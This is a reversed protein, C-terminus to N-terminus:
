ELDSAPSRETGASETIEESVAHININMQFLRKSNGTKINGQEMFQHITEEIRSMMLQRQEKDLLAVASGYRRLDKPLAQARIADQLSEKHYNLLDENGLETSVFFAGSNCVYEGDFEQVLNLEQLTALCFHIDAIDTLLIRSLNEPTKRIQHLDLLSFLRPILAKRLFIKKESISRAEINMKLLSTIKRGASKKEEKSKSQSYIVLHCFYDREIEKEFIQLCMRDIIFDTVNRKGAIILRLLTKNKLGLEHSWKQFSFSEDISKRYHYYDKLFERSSLYEFVIPKM